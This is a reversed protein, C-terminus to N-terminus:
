ELTKNWRNHWHYGFTGPFLDKKWNENEFFDDFYKFPADDPIDQHDRWLPDFFASPLITIDVNNEFKFSTLPFFPRKFSGYISDVLNNGKELRLLCANGCNDAGWQSMWRTLNIENLNRLFIIDMDFYIGGDNHLVVFRFIDSLYAINSQSWSAKMIKNYAIWLSDKISKAGKMANFVNIDFNKVEVFDKIKLYAASETINNPNDTWLYINEISQTKLLSNLCLVHLDTIEGSWFCHFINPKDELNSNEPITKNRNLYDFCYQVDNYKEIPIDKLLKM